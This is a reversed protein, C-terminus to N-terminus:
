WLVDYGDFDDDDKVEGDLDLWVVCGFVDVDFASADERYADFANLVDDWADVDFLVDDMGMEGYDSFDFGGDDDDVDFLVLDLGDLMVCVMLLFVM